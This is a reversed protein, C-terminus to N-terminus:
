PKADVSTGHLGVTYSDICKHPLNVCASLGMSVAAGVGDLNVGGKRSRGLGVFVVM